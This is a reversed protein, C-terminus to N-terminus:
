EVKLDIWTLEGNIDPYKTFMVQDGIKFGKFETLPESKCERGITGEQKYWSCIHVGLQTLTCNEVNNFDRKLRKDFKKYKDFTCKGNMNWWCDNIGSKIEIGNMNLEEKHYNEYLENFCRHDSHCSAFPM